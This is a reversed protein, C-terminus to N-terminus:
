KSGSNMPSLPVKAPMWLLSPMIDNGSKMWSNVTRGTDYRVTNPELIPHWCWVNEDDKPLRDKVSIWQPEGEPVPSVPAISLDIKRKGFGNLIVGIRGHPKETRDTAVVPLKECLAGVLMDFGVARNDWPVAMLDIDRKLSGHAGIAYGCEFAIARIKEVRIRTDLDMWAVAEYAVPKRRVCGGSGDERIWCGTVTAACPLGNDCKDLRDKTRDCVRRSACGTVDQCVKCANWERPEQAVPAAALMANIRDEIGSWDPDGSAANSHIDQLLKVLDEVMPWLYIPFHDLLNDLNPAIASVQTLSRLAMDCLAVFSDTSCRLAQEAPIKDDGWGESAQVAGRKLAEITEKTLDAM